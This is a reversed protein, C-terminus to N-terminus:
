SQQLQPLAMLRLRAEVSKALRSCINFDVLVVGPTGLRSRVPNDLQRARVFATMTHCCKAQAQHATRASPRCGHEHRFMYIRAGFTQVGRNMGGATEDGSM